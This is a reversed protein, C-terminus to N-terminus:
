ELADIANSIVQMFVQNLQSPYCEVLPLDGYNKIVQIQPREATAKLRHQLILLTSDIGQHIDVPKSEDPDHRSFNGLSLVIKHIRETGVKM